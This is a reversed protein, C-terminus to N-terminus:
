SYGRRHPAARRHRRAASQWGHHFGLYDRGGTPTLALVPMFAAPERLEGTALGDPGMVIENGVSPRPGQHHGGGGAGQHQGLRHPSRFCGVHLASRQRDSNLLQRTIPTGAGFQQHTAAIAM